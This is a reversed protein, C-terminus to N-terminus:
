LSALIKIMREIDRGEVLGHTPLTLLRRSLDEAQPCHFEGRPIHREIGRIDCIASPYYGSAGIGARRLELLARDRSAGDKAVLPFRIYTPHCDDARRPVRFNVNGELACALKTASSFRHQNLEALRDMLGELLGGSFSGLRTARFGPVFETIGLKLFPLSNPIWYLRPKMLASSALVELFVGANHVFSPPPLLELETRLANAIEDSNSVILGGEGAGIPKGRALSYFGVDGDTGSLRGHRSAGIAQAADDVLFAGKSTAIQQIRPVDNALGFLNSTIICLLEAQPVKELHSYDFDLTELDVEVPLLKLGARVIAAAVSFCTYAPLAVLRRDPRLKHLSKLILWLAARGSSVALVHRVNLRAALLALGEETRGNSRLGRSFARCAQSIRVPAGAPPVFRLM